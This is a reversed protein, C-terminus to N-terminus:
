VNEVEEVIRVKRCTYGLWKMTPWMDFHPNRYGASKKASAIATNRNEGSATLEGGKFVGWVEHANDYADAKARLTALEKKLLVCKLLLETNELKLAEAQRNQRPLLSM